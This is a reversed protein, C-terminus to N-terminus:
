EENSRFLDMFMGNRSSKSNDAIIALSSAISSLLAFNWEEPTLEMKQLEELLESFKEYESM